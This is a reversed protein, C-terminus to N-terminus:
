RNEGIKEKEGFFARANKKTKTLRTTQARPRPRRERREHPRPALAGARKKGAPRGQSGSIPHHSGKLKGGGGKEHQPARPPWHHYNSAFLKKIQRKPRARTGQGPRGPNEVRSNSGPESHVSAAHKVCALRIRPLACPPRTLLAHAVQGATPFLAGFPAAIGCSAARM